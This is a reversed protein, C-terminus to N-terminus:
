KVIWCIKRGYIGYWKVIWGIKKGYKGDREVSKKWIKL